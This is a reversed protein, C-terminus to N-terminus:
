TWWSSWATYVIAANFLLAPQMLAPLDALGLRRRAPPLADYLPGTGIQPKPPPPTPLTPPPRDTFSPVAPRLPLSFTGPGGSTAVVSDVPHIVESDRRAPSEIGYADALERVARRAARLRHLLVEGACVQRVSASTNCVTPSFYALALLGILASDIDTLLQEDATKTPRKPPKPPAQPKPPKNPPRTSSTM